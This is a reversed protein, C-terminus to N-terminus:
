KNRVACSVVCSNGTLFNIMFSASRETHRIKSITPAVSAGETALVIGVVCVDNASRVLEPRLLARRGKGNNGNGLCFLAPTAFAAGDAAAAACGDMTVTNVVTVSSAGLGVCAACAAESGMVWLSPDTSPACGAELM